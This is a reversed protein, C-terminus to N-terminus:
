IRFIKRERVLIEACQQINKGLRHVRVCKKERLELMKLKVFTTVATNSAVVQSGCKSACIVDDVLDLPLVFVNNKYKYMPNPDQYAPKGLKDM